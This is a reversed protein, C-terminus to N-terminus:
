AGKIDKDHTPFLREVTEKISGTSEWTSLASFPVEYMPAKGNTGVPYKMADKRYIAFKQGELHKAKTFVIRIVGTAHDVKNKHMKMLITMNSM